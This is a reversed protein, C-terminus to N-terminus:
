FMITVLGDTDLCSIVVAIWTAVYDRIRVIPWRPAFKTIQSAEGAPPNSWQPHSFGVVGGDAQNSILLGLHQDPPHRTSKGVPQSVPQSALQSTPLWTAALGVLM